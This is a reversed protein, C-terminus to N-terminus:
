KSTPEEEDMVRYRGEVVRSPDKEGSPGGGRARWPAYTEVVHRPALNIVLYVALSLVALYGVIGLVPVRAVPTLFYVLSAPIVMKLLLHVRRDFHLKWVLYATRVLRPALRPVLMWFLLPFAFRLM